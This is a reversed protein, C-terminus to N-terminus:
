NELLRKFIQSLVLYISAIFGGLFGYLLIAQLKGIKDKELPLIPKDIIQILPTEKLLTVKSM